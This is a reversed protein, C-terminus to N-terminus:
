EPSTVHMAEEDVRKKKKYSVRLIGHPVFGNSRGKEVGHDGESGDRNGRQGRVAEWRESPFRM